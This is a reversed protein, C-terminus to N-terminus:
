KSQKFLWERVAGIKYAYDFSTMHEGSGAPTSSSATQATGSGCGILGIALVASIIIGLAKIRM